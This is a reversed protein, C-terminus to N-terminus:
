KARKMENIQDIIGDDDNDTMLMSNIVVRDIVEYWV